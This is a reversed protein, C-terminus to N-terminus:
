SALCIPVLLWVQTGVLSLIVHSSSSESPTPKLGLESKDCWLSTIHQLVYPVEKPETGLWISLDTVGATCVSDVHLKLFITSFFFVVWPLVFPSNIWLKGNCPHGGDNTINPLSYIALLPKPFSPPCFSAKLYTRTPPQLMPLQLYILQFQADQTIPKPLMSPKRQYMRLQFHPGYMSFSVSMLQARVARFWYSYLNYNLKRSQNNCLDHTLNQQWINDQWQWMIDQWM